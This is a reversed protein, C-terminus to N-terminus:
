RWFPKLAKLDRWLSKAGAWGLDAKALRAGIIWGSARQAALNRAGPADDGSFLEQAMAADNLDGFVSQLKKLRKVFPAVKKQSYLPSLFEVAYRLKKLEKRLDHRAEHELSDIGKARKATAKWRRGLSSRAMEGVPEALRRSQDMDDPLLWGRTEVFQALDMLFAQVRAGGLTKRVEQRAESASDVLSRALTAFGVEDPHAAAEPELIDTRAVDLNRLAGVEQGLWKAEAGLRDVEPSAIASSFVLFASRLRRLGVRLQHPGEPDDSARLVEANVAIQDFCERLAQRAAQEATMEPSLPVSRANRPELAHEIVGERALLYGREAKSLHSFRLGGDPILDRALDYLATVSGEVLEVEAERLPAAKGDARIEGVDIALEARTGDALTLQNSTRKIVSECVPKIDRDDIIELIKARVAEDAVAEVRLRGGPAPCEFEDADSLGGSLTRRAKVTQLWSRGDRRLRVSYGAGALAHDSTDYYISRLTRTRQPGAALDMQRLRARLQRTTREDILFKLEIEPM